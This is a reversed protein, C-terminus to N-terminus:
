TRRPFFPPLRPKKPPEQTIWARIMQITADPLKNAFKPMQGLSAGSPLKGEIRWVLVSSDPKSPYVLKLGKTPSEESKPGVINNYAQEFEHHCGVCENTFVPKIDSTYSYNTAADILSFVAASMVIASFPLIIRKM